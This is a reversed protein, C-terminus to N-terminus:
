PTTGKPIPTLPLVNNCEEMPPFPPASLKCKCALGDWSDQGGKRWGCVQCYPHLPKTQEPERLTYTPEQGTRYSAFAIEQGDEDTLTEYWYETDQETAVQIGARNKITDFQEKTISRVTM